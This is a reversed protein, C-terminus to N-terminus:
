RFAPRSTRVRIVILATALLLIGSLVVPATPGNADLMMGGMLAGFTNAVQIVAVQLGGASEAADPLARTIWTSWGVPIVGFALGWIAIVLVSIEKSRGAVVLCGACVALVLPALALTRKLHKRTFTSSAATGVFNAGGFLLMLASISKIGFSPVKEFFPRMYTFFAFQGAFVAFIALMAIPVGPRAMLSFAAWAGTADDSHPMRPLARWQWILCGLGLLASALFVGRWGVVGGLYTGAPAAIVLAISVGGFVIALSKPVDKAPALRMALSSAISWFGGLAIGLLVRGLMLFFFNGFAALLSSGILFAVHVIVITRRDIGRTITSAFLSAFIAAFATVTLTQGAMGTTVGLGEAMPTLLSAPLLEVTILTAVSVAIALIAGWKATKLGAEQKTETEALNSIQM